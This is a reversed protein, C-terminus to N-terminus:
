LLRGSKRLKDSVHALSVLRNMKSVVYLNLGGGGSPGGIYAKVARKFFVWAVVFFFLLCPLVHLVSHFRLSFALFAFFALFQILGQINLLQM